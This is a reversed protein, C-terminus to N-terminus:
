QTRMFLLILGHAHRGYGPRKTFGQAYVEVLDVDETRISQLVCTDTTRTGDVYVHPNGVGRYNVNSRLTIQPCDVGNRQVRMNPVKGQLASLVSGRGDDLAVGSIVIAGDRYEVGGGTRPEPATGPQGTTCAALLFGAFPIAISRLRISM